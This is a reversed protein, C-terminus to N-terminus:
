AHDRLSKQSESSDRSHSSLPAAQDRREKISEVVYLPRKRTEDFHRWIYEGMVGSMMMQLGNMILITVMLSSWGVMKTGNLLRDVVIFISTISGVLFAIMGTVSILRIPVFSYAVFGDIFYTIKRSVSWQSRGLERRKREYYIIKPHHGPWLIQGQLFLNREEMRLLIEIVSRDMLFFDFGGVPMNPIAFRRMLKYFAKSTLKNFYSDDRSERVALVLKHGLSWQQVMESIIAPPDQLDASMAIVCDGSCSSIGAMLASVQGFNRQLNIISVHKSDSEYVNLLEELSNDTSGDNVFLIEYNILAISEDLVARLAQYTHPINLENQFVPIVISVTGIM